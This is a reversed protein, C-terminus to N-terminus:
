TYLVLFVLRAGILVRSLKALEVNMPDCLSILGFSGVFAYIDVLDSETQRPSCVGNLFM